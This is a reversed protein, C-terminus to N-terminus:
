PGRRAQATPATDRRTGEPANKGAPGGREKGGPRGGARGPARGAERGAGRGARGARWVPEIREARGGRFSREWPAGAFLWAGDLLSASQTCLQMLWSAGRSFGLAIVERARNPAVGAWARVVELVQILVPPMPRTFGKANRGQKAGKGGVHIFILICPKQPRM